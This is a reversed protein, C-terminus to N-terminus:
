FIVQTFIGKANSVRLRTAIEKPAFSDAISVVACGALVIALYIVVANVTMQTDIAIADGKSFNADIANAVLRSIVHCVCYTYWFTLTLCSVYSIVYMVQQRLQKLTIRNVESDDSGEDRWVIAISDDQKNPHSSPQLCCDAINLVSGPLWTGGHKSPDSTDLICNPPQLFSISLEKLVLSWYVQLEICYLYLM